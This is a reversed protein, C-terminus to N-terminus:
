KNTEELLNDWWIFPLQTQFINQVADVVKLNLVKYNQRIKLVKLFNEKGRLLFYPFAVYYIEDLQVEDNFENLLIIKKIKLNQNKFTFIVKMGFYAFTSFSFRPYLALSNKALSYLDTGYLKLIVIKDDNLPVASLINKEAFQYQMFEKEFVPFFGVTTETSEKLCYAFFSAILFANEKSLDQGINTTFPHSNKTEKASCTHILLGFFFIAIGFAIFIKLRKIKYDKLKSIM